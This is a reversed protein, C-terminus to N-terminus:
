GKAGGGDTFKDAHQYASPANRQQMAPLVSKQCAPAGWKLSDVAAAAKLKKDITWNKEYKNILFQLKKINVATTPHKPLEQQPFQEWFEDPMKQGLVIRNSSSETESAANAFFPPEATTWGEVV